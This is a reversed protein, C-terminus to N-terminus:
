GGTILFTLYHRRGLRRLAAKGAEEAVRLRVLDSIESGLRAQRQQFEVRRRSAATRANIQEDQLRKQEAQSARRLEDLQSQADADARKRDGELRNRVAAMRAKITRSENQPLTTPVSARARAEMDKRWREVVEARKEGVGPVRIERGGALRFYAVASGYKGGSQYRVGTFDAATRIGAAIFADTTSPGMHTLRATDKISVRSLRDRVHSRQIAVLAAREEEQSRRDVAHLDRVIAAVRKDRNTRIQTAAKHQVQQLRGIEATEKADRASEEQEFRKIEQQLTAQAKEPERYASVRQRLDALHHRAARTEPRSRWGQHLLMLAGAVFLPALYGSSSLVATLVASALLFLALAGYVTDARGRGQFRTNPPPATSPAPPAAAASTGTLHPHQHDALWSPVGNPASPSPPVRGTSASPRGASGATTRSGPVGAASLDPLASLPQAAFMRVMEALESVRRDPHALLTGFRLSSSPSQFDEEALLLFEGDPDHLRSWLSADVSIATLSLHINWVSFRDLEPGFDRDSRLPSQYNRHGKETARHGALAPVFMGDYDVLRLTGDDAVLLNGHQLDGHAMGAASLDAALAAFRTALASTRSRDAHHDDIWRILNHGAAWEMKLLPYWTGLVM